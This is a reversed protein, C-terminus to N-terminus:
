PFITLNNERKTHFLTAHFWSFFSFLPFYSGKGHWWPIRPTVCVCGKKKVCEEIWCKQRSGLSHFKPPINVLHHSIFNISLTCWTFTPGIYDHQGVYTTKTSVRMLVNAYSWIDIVLHFTIYSCREKKRKRQERKDYNPHLEQTYKHVM